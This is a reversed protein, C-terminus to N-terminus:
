WFIKSYYSQDDAYVAMEPLSDIKQKQEYKSPEYNKLLYAINEFVTKSALLYFSQFKTGIRKRILNLEPKYLSLIDLDNIFIKRGYPEELRNICCLMFKETGDLDIIDFIDSQAINM